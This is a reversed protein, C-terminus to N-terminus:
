AIASRIWAVAENLSAFPPLKTGTPDCRGFGAELFWHGDHSGYHEGSLQTLVAVLVGDVFVIQGDLQEAGCAIPASQCSLVQEM